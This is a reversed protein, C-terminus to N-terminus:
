ESLVWEVILGFSTTLLLYCQVRSSSGGLFLYFRVTSLIRSPGSTFELVTRRVALSLSSTYIDSLGTARFSDGSLRHFSFSRLNGLRALIARPMRRLGAVDVGESRINEIACSVTVLSRLQWLGLLTSANFLSM